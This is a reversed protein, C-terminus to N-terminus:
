RSLLQHHQICTKLRQKIDGSKESIKAKLLRLQIMMHICIAFYTVDYTMVVPTTIWICYYQTALLSIQTLLTNNQMWVHFPFADRNNFYPKLMHYTSSVMFVM